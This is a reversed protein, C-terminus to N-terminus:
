IYYFVICKLNKRYLNATFSFILSLVFFFSIFRFFSLFGVSIPHAYDKCFYFGKEKWLDKNYIIGEYSSYHPLAYYHATGDKDVSFYQKQEETMTFVFQRVPEGQYLTFPTQGIFEGSDYDKLFSTWLCKRGRGQARVCLGVAATTKGKGDGCYIHILGFSDNKQEM